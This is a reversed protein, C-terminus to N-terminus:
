TLFVLSPNLARNVGYTKINMLSHGSSSQTHETQREVVQGDTRLGVQPGLNMGTGMRVGPDLWQQSILGITQKRKMWIRDMKGNM